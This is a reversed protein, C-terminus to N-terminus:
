KAFLNMYLEGPMLAGLGGAFYIIPTEVPEATDPAWVDVYHNLGSTIWPWFTRFM